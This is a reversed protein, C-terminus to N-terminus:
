IGFEAESNTGEQHTKGIEGGREMRRGEKWIRSDSTDPDTKSTDLKSGVFIDGSLSKM